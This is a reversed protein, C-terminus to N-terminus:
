RNMLKTEEQIYESFEEGEVQRGACESLPARRQNSTYGVANDM